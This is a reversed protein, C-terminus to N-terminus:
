GWGLKGGGGGGQPRAAWSVVGGWFVWGGGSGTSGLKRKARVRQQAARM